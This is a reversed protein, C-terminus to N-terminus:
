QPTVSALLLRVLATQRTVGTKSFIARLQARATNKRVGLQVAAEDLSQGDALLLALSSEAPTLGFLRQIMERSAQSRSEPDRIFVAVTPRHRTELWDGQPISRLALGLKARGSPRSISMAQSVAGATSTIGQLALKILRYLERNEAGYGAELLGQAIRLGDNERLIHHAVSNTKLVTGAEDLIVTGLLMRDVTGALLQRESEAADISTYLRVANEFHPLLMQCLAKDAASFPPAEAPRCIRFRCESGEETHIDAGMVYRVGAPECFQRYYESNLWNSEGVMEDATVIRDSPLNMFPDLTFVDPNIHPSAAVHPGGERGMNVMLAQHGASAPRLILTVWSAQLLRHLAEVAGSWPLPDLAGRYVLAVLRSFQDLPLTVGHAGSGTEESSKEKLKSAM